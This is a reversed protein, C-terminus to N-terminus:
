TLNMMSQFKTRPHSWQYLQQNSLQLEIHFSSYLRSVPELGFDETLVCTTYELQLIEFNLTTYISM